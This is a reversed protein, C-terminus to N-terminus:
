EIVKIRNFPYIVFKAKGVINENPILGIVKNRSDSSNNRNDGMVFCHGEPIVEPIEADGELWMREKIYTENLKQGNVFVKGTDFNIKLTQGETAIVRKILPKNYEEGHKIVVVDGNKPVYKWRIVAVKDGNFLTNMMSKGDVTFMRFLFTMLLVVLINNRSWEM